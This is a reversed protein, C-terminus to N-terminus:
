KTGPVWILKPVSYQTRKPEGLGKRVPNENKDVNNMRKPGDDKDGTAHGLEHGLVAAKSAVELGTSEMLKPNNYPDIRVTLKEGTSCNGCYYADKTIPAIKYVDSSKELKDAIKMGQKTSTLRVYADQLTKYATPDTTVIKVERGDPDVFKYPNNNGYAYRNFSQPNGEVFGVPDYGMFRGIVPDYYRAGAYVLGTEKDLRHGTYGVFEEESDATSEIEEGYPKYSKRWILEGQDNTAAVPSGLLDNHYYTVDISAPGAQTVGAVLMLCLGLSALLRHGLKHAVRHSKEARQAGTFDILTQQLNNM